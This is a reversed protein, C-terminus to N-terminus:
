NRKWNRKPNMRNTHFKNNDQWRDEKLEKQSEDTELISNRYLSLTKWNRKPNMMDDETVFGINNTDKLEKQSEDPIDVGEDFITSALREIGKPIWRLDKGLM